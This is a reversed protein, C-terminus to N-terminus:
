EGFRFGIAITGGVALGPQHVLREPAGFVLRYRTAPYLLLAGARSFWGKGSWQLSLTAGFSAWLLKRKTSVAVAGEAGRASLRGLEAALCPELSLNAALPVLTPCGELRAM